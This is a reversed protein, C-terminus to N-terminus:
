RYIAFQGFLYFFLFLPISAFAKFREVELGVLFYALYIPVLIAMAVLFGILLERARGTYEAADGDILTNSWLHRRIDTALWFRYFGVTVLELAAGRTVLRRFESRDGVFSLPLPPPSAPQPPVFTMQNM